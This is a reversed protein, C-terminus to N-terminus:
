LPASGPANLVPEFQFACGVYFEPSPRQKLHQGPPKGTTPNRHLITLETVHPGLLNYHVEIRYIQIQRRADQMTHDLALLRGGTRQPRLNGLPFNRPERLRVHGHPIDLQLSPRTSTLDPAETSPKSTGM